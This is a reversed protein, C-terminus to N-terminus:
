ASIELNPNAALVTCPRPAQAQLCLRADSLWSGPFTFEDEDYTTHVTGSTVLTGDEIEPLDQLTTFDQGYRIGKAHVWALVLGLSQIMKHKNLISQVASPQLGLKASKWQATYGLGVVGTTAASSLTIQGGSVTYRQTWTTSSDDTGVDAGDAWVVVSEGELHSLGTILTTATSNTFTVFSDALKCLTSGRCETEKAWKELYRVTSGNITRKVVYYVQDETSGNQGPLVVVDEIEGDTTINVWALVDENKNLVGLMVTGDSRVCHMRTDPQRQIDMRVIGPSGFEPVLATLDTANYLFSNPDSEIQYVKIGGRQVFIGTQDIKGPDVASSGQTSGVKINFNTPTIPEDLSSSRVSLEGGQAGLVLRQMSLMWNITDVPGSGITRNIPASDGEITDDFSDYADSASGVISDKGAWWCRGEHLRVSTPWGRYDSWKGESWTSVATLGGLDTIVEASVSTGSSHGTIRVVGVVTGTAIQLATVVTGSTYDGTKVGIRYWVSQNDFGDTLSTTTNSTYSAATVDAWPGSASTFSRQLTVTATWTGSIAISFVRDTGVGTVRIPDSFTNAGSISANVLQGTSEIRYLAGVHTSRFLNASATLTINGSLASPTITIPSTNEVRFPGDEPRYLVVSWSRTARREIRRQQYGSCAVFLVDGSQDYRVNSLDATLWPTTISMVGSSEVNCSDVLVQRKLRSMFRINFNGTPTFALSHTGTELTTETIYDDGGTTSGVRLVVPGRQVVIRLAHEDNQDAAAVTVTQDRIAANTGDGTLGMYGGTVWASTAGAEDNDTWSTLNTDFNGNAVASSVSGRTIPSENVLVRMAGNTLEILATDTTAFVFRLYRAQLNSRTGTIYGLGPRIVMPGLERPIWNTMTEASLAVRKQDVRAIALASVVGRNFSFLPLRQEM